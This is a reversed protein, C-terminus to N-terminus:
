VLEIANACSESANPQPARTRDMDLQALWLIGALAVRAMWYALAFSVACAVFM